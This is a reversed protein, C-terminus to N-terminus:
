KKIFLPVIKEFLQFIVLILGIGKVIGETTSIKKDIQILQAEINCVRQLVGSSKDIGILSTELLSLRKEIEHIKNMDEM